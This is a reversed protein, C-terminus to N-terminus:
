KDWGERGRRGREKDNADNWNWNKLKQPQFDWLFRNESEYTRIQNSSNSRAFASLWGDGFEHFLISAKPYNVSISDGAVQACMRDFLMRRDCRGLVTRPVSCNVTKRWIQVVCWCFVACGRWEGSVRTVMHAGNIFSTLKHQVRM